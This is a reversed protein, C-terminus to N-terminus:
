MKLQNENEKTTGGDIIDIVNFGTMFTITQSM